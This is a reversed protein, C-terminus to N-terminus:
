DGAETGIAGESETEKVSGVLVRELNLGLGGSFSRDADQLQSCRLSLRGAGMRLWSGAEAALLLLSFVRRGIALGIIRGIGV